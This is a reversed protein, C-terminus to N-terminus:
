ETERDDTYSIIQIDVDKVTGGGITNKIGVQAFRLFMPHTVKADETSGSIVDPLLQVHEYYEEYDLSTLIFKLLAAGALTHDNAFALNVHYEIMGTPALGLGSSDINWSQSGAPPITTPADLVDKIIAKSVYFKNGTSHIGMIQKFAGNDYTILSGIRRKFTKTTISHSAGFTALANSGNIDTDGLIKVLSGDENSFLFIYVSVKDTFGASATAMIGTSVGYYMWDDSTANVLGYIGGGSYTWKSEGTYWATGTELLSAYGPSLILSKGVYGGTEPVNFELGTIRRVLSQKTLSELATKYENEMFYLQYKLSQSINQLVYNLEKHTITEGKKKGYEEVIKELPPDAFDTSTLLDGWTFITDPKVPAGNAM